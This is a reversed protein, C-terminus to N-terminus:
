RIARQMKIVPRIGVVSIALRKLRNNIFSYNGASWEVIENIYDAARNKEKSHIASDTHIAAIYQKTVANMWKSEQLAPKLRILVDSAQISVKIWDSSVSGEVKRHIFYTGPVYRIAANALVLRIHFDWDQASGLSEDYGGIKQVTEKKYLPNGTIIIKKVATELPNHEIDSFSNSATVTDLSNNKEAWDSVVMETLGEFGKVQKEFKDPILLDDADLFQIIDGSAAKLGINRAASAGKNESHIVKLLPAHMQELQTLVVRTNDTSGDNVCIIEQPLYTQKLVSDVCEAIYREANYCPIIVSIKKM